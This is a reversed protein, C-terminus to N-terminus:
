KIQRGKVNRSYVIIIYERKELLYRKTLNTICTEKTLIIGEM